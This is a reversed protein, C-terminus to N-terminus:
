SRQRLSKYFVPAATPNPKYTFCDCYADIAQIVGLLSAGTFTLAQGTGWHSLFNGVITTMNANLGATQAPELILSGAAYHLNVASDIAGLFDSSLQKNDNFAVDMPVPIRLRSILDCLRYELYQRVGEKAFDVQGAQLMAITQDRVKNVAGAQPLVAIQPVGELRQHWWLNSNNHKNFLKELMTDHSLLIVQPGTATQPRGFATRILEVLFYQHGADFSSTVDDLVIFKPLGGYLSAAALYLSIAFANRFSESLLAQPSLNALGHFELLRIDLDESNTRKSVSPVVGFFSMKSFFTKFLPQVAALREKSITTEAAGFTEAAKDVFAKIRSVKRDKENIGQINENATQLRAWNEQLRRAAEVKKTVEVASAPLAAELSAQEANLTTLRSAARSRLTQLWAVITRATEEAILGKSARPAHTAILRQAVQPELAAELEALDSWGAESWELALSQTAEDLATFESLKGNIHDRLDHAVTSECLPCLNPNECDPHDIVAAGIQFLQLMMDGATKAHAAERQSAKTVLVVARDAAPAEVNLRALEGRERICAGLRERKPGGEAQKIAEICADVDIEEFAKGECHAALPAIQSLAHRCVGKATVADATAMAEGVLAEYDRAIAMGADHAVKNEHGHAQALAATEFHNGFSRTHAVGALAQRLRSYDALGLLGSFTRGRDLPKASIFGQFARGDLLVFERDLSRLIADADWPPTATATRHGIRDRTVTIECQDGTPEALLKLTIKATGSPNFRNLYYDGSKETAPLEDLWKLRGSIAYRIADCISSKGVGNVASVSNVKDTHFKLELPNGQNNIGRFGEVSIGELLWGLVRPATTAPAPAITAPPAPAASASVPPTEQEDEPTETLRSFLADLMESQGMSGDALKDFNDCLLAGLRPDHAVVNEAYSALNTTLSADKDFSFVQTAKAM